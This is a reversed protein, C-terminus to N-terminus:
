CSTSWCSVTLQDDEPNYLPTEIEGLVELAIVEESHESRDLIAPKTNEM